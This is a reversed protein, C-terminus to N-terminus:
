HGARGSETSEAFSSDTEWVRVSSCIVEPFAQSLAENMVEQLFLAMNEATSNAYQEPMIFIRNGEDLLFEILSFDKPHVICAHDWHTDIFGLILKKMDGFDFLIADERTLEGKFTFEARYNHGHVNGCLGDYNFLRHASAWKVEKTTTVIKKM